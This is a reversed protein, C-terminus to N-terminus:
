GELKLLPHVGMPDPGTYSSDPGEFFTRIDQGVAEDESLTRGSVHAWGVFKLLGSDKGIRYVPGEKSPNQVEWLLTAASPKGRLALVINSKKELLTFTLRRVATAAPKPEPVSPEPEGHSVEREPLIPALKRQFVPAVLPTSPPRPAAPAAVATSRHSLIEPTIGALKDRLATIADNKQEVYVPDCADTLRTNRSARQLELNISEFAAKLSNISLLYVNRTLFPSNRLLSAEMENVKLHPLDIPVEIEDADEPDRQMVLDLNMTAHVMVAKSIEDFEEQLCEEGFNGPMLISEEDQHIVGEKCGSSHARKDNLVRATFEACAVEVDFQGPTDAEKVSKIKTYTVNRNGYSKSILKFVKGVSEKWLILPTKVEDLEPTHLTTEQMQAVMNDYLIKNEKGKYAL